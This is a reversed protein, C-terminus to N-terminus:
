LIDKMEKIENLLVKENTTLNEIDINDWDLVDININKDNSYVAQVIGGRIEVIIKDM